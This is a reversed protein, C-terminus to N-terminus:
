DVTKQSLYERFVRTVTKHSAATWDVNGRNTPHAELWASIFKQPAKM